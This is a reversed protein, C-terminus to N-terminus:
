TWSKQAVLSRQGCSKGPLFVPALQWKWTWPILGLDGTTCASEKGSLWKPLGNQIKTKLATTRLVKTEKM